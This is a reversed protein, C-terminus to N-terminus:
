TGDVLEGVTVFHYGRDLLAPIVLRLAEPTPSNHGIFDHMLIIDGAQVTDLINRCIEAPPTHAWDRTDVDWLVIRYDLTGILRRMAESTQGEPPRIFHPRYDAVSAIADECATIERLMDAENMRNFKRHSFTHNGVEHGAAVVASAAEPYYTVNEGVMFFTARIDYEALIDLILPTYHPHPGDDFSLAIEMRDNRRGHYIVEPDDRGTVNEAPDAPAQTVSEAVTDSDTEASDAEKDQDKGWFPFRGMIPVTQRGEGGGSPIAGIEVQGSLGEAAPVTEGHPTTEDLHHEYRGAGYGEGAATRVWLWLGVALVTLAAVALVVWSARVTKRAVNHRAM